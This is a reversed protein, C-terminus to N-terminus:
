INRQELRKENQYNWLFILSIILIYDFRNVVGSVYIIGCIKLKTSILNIWKEFISNFIDSSINIVDNM